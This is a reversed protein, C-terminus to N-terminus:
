CVVRLLRALRPFLAALMGVAPFLVKRTTRAPGAGDPGARKKSRAMGLEDPWRRTVSMEPLPQLHRMPNLPEM